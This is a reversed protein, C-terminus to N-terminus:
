YDSLLVTMFDQSDSFYTILYSSVIWSSKEFAKLDNTIAVLSTSVITIDLASLFVSLCLRPMTLKNATDLPSQRVRHHSSYAEM